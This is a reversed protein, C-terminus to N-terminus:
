EDNVSSIFYRGGQNVFTINIRVVMTTKIVPDVVEVNIKALYHASGTDEIKLEKITNFTYLGSLPFVVANDMLLNQIKSQNDASLYNKLFNEIVPFMRNQEEEAVMNANNTPPIKAADILEVIPLGEAVVRGQEDQFIDVSVLLHRITMDKKDTIVTAWTDVPIRMIGDKLLIPQLAAVQEVIQKNGEIPRQSNISSYLIPYIEKLMQQKENFSDKDVTLYVKVVQEALAQASTYDVEQEIINKEFMRSISNIGGLASLSILIWVLVTTARQM